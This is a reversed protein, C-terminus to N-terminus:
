QNCNPILKKRLDELNLLFWWSQFNETQERGGQLKHANCLNQTCFVQIVVNVLVVDLQVWPEIVNQSPLAEGGTYPKLKHVRQYGVGPEQERGGSVRAFPPLPKDVALVLVQHACFSQVEQVFQQAVIVLGAECGPLGHIM